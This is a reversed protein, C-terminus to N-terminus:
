AAGPPPAVQANCPLVDASPQAEDPLEAVALLAGANALAIPAQTGTPGLDVDRLTLFGEQRALWDSLRLPPELAVTGTVAGCALLCVVRRPQATPTAPLLLQREECCPVVLLAASRRVAVFPLEERGAVVVGTLALYPSEQELFDIMSHFRPPHFSGRLWGSPTLVRATIVRLPPRYPSSM